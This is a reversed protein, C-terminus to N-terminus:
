KTSCISSLTLFSRTYVDETLTMLSVDHLLAESPEVQRALVADWDLGTFFAHAKLEAAAKLRKEPSKVLLQELLSKLHTSLYTPLLLPSNVINSTM